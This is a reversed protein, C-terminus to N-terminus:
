RGVRQQRGPAEAGMRYDQRTTEGDRLTVRASATVLGELLAVDNWEGSELDPLAALFYEGPLLGKVSFTGDTAPRTTRVRRSGPTWHGRDTSFVLVYYDPAPRGAPDVLRGTLTAPRDTMTVTWEVPENPHVRLPAEFAERGNAAAAKISWRDRASPANWTWLFRYTDPVISAFTFRGDSDVRGGGFSQVQGGAGPAALMFALSELESATPQAGEFVVRGNVPVGPQLVLDVALDEGAVHVDAAAWQTPGDPAAGRGRGIIAKASYTGPPVGTFIYRGPAQPQTRLGRLGAGALLETNPGSPVLTVSLTPPLSGSPSVVTVTVSATSFLQTTIDVGSREENQALQVVSATGIDPTGPHFVPAYTHRGPVAPPVAISGGGTAGGSRAAQLAQRVEASTLQRIAENGRGSPEPGPVLALYAGPPLGYARYEGRDDAPTVRASGPTTLTREGTTGDYGLRLVRVEAGPVPRDRSDRVTGTIVSGRVIPIVVDTIAEGEKVVIPTGPRDPRAAGYSARLYADKFAQVTFQGAPLNTFGFAGRDDTTATRAVSRSTDAITVRARRAPRKTDGDILVRGAITAAGTVARVGDRPQQRAGAAPDPGLAPISATLLVAALALRIIM